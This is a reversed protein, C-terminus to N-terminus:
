ALKAIYLGTNRGSMWTQGAKSALFGFTDSVATGFQKVWLKEGTAMRIGAIFFDNSGKNVIGPESDWAGAANYGGIVLVGPLTCTGDLVNINKGTDIVKSWKQNGDSDFKIMVGFLNNNNSWGHGVAYMDGASDMCLASMRQQNKNTTLPPVNKQWLQNGDPDFKRFVAPSTGDPENSFGIAFVNGSSDAVVGSIYDAESTGMSHAWMRQGQPNYKLVYADFNGGYTSGSFGGNNTVGCVIINGTHDIKMDAVLQDSPPGWQKMWVTNGATDLKVLGIDHGGSSTQGPLKNNRAVYGGVYINTNYIRMVKVVLHQIDVQWLKPTGSAPDIKMIKGYGNHEFATYLFGLNDVALAPTGVHGSQLNAIPTQPELKTVGTSTVTTSPTPAQYSSCANCGTTPAKSYWVKSTYEDHLFSANCPVHAEPTCPVGVPLAPYNIDYKSANFKKKLCASLTTSKNQNQAAFVKFLCLIRDGMKLDAKRAAESVKVAKHTENRLKVRTKFCSRQASCVGELFSAYACFSKEFTEQKKTCDTTKNKWVSTNTDCVSYKGYLPDMWIKTKELCSEMKIKDAEVLTQIYNSTLDTPLCAPPEAKADTTRYSNYNQCASSTSSNYTAETNRCSSHQQRDSQVTSNYSTVNAMGSSAADVCGQVLDRARNVEGQDEAHQVKTTNQMGRIFKEIIDIANKEAQTMTYNHGAVKKALDEVVSSMEQLSQSGAAFQESEQELDHAQGVLSSRQALSSATMEQQEMAPYTEQPSSCQEVPMSTLGPLVLSLILAVLAM